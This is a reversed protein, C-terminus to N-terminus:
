RYSRNAYQGKKSKIIFSAKDSGDDFTYCSECYKCPGFLEGKILKNLNEITVDSRKCDFPIACHGIRWDDFDIYTHPPNLSCLKKQDVHLNSDKFCEIMKLHRKDNLLRFLETAKYVYRRINHTKANMLKIFFKNSVIETEKFYDWNDVISKTTLETAVLINIAMDTFDLDYFKIIETGNIDKILHEKYEVRNLWDVGRKRILGNSLVIIDKVNKHDHVTKFVEDINNILGIEGGTLEVGLNPGCNDLIFKLKSIDCETTNSGRHINCYYCSQNCHRALFLQIYYNM